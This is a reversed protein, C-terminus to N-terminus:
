LEQPYGATPRLSAVVSRLTPPSELTLQLQQRPEDAHQVVPLVSAAQVFTRTENGAARGKALTVRAIGSRCMEPLSFPNVLNGLSYFIPVQRDPDRRTRYLEFPQLVHPHHGIIVDAGLEALHHAVDLQDPTPFFEFELGWHLQLITADARQARAWALQRELASFDVADLAYNLRTRNVLWPQDPPPQYGNLGFTHSILALRFGRREILCARDATDARENLGHFAIGEARLTRITSRVGAEGFDLSHNCATALFTYRRRTTGKIADFSAHSYRLQLAKKPNFHFEAEGESFLVCELNAMAVDVGFIADEVRAYLTDRSASLFPHDMLDGVASLELTSEPEFHPPLECRESTRAAFYRDIGSGRRPQSIPHAAKQLWYAKDWFSMEELDGNAPLPHHGRARLLLLARAAGFLLRERPALRLVDLATRPLTVPAPM